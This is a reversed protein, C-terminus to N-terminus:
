LAATFRGDFTDIDTLAEIQLRMFFSTTDQSSFQQSEAINGGAEVIAGSIAHVIGPGDVCSLTLVWQACTNTTEITSVLCLALLDRRTPHSAAEATVTSGHRCRCCRHRGEFPRRRSFARLPGLDLADPHEPPRPQPHRPEDERGREQEARER